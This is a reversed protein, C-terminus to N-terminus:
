SDAKPYERAVRAVGKLRVINGKPDAYVVMQEVDRVANLSRAVYVPQVQVDTQLRGGSTAFGKQMLKAALM